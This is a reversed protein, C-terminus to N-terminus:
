SAFQIAGSLYNYTKECPIAKSLFRVLPNKSVYNIMQVRESVKCFGLDPRDAKLMMYNLM